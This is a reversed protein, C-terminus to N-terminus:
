DTAPPAKGKQNREIQILVDFYGVLNNVAERYDEDTDYYIGDKAFTAKWKILQLETLEIMYTTYSTRYINTSLPQKGAAQNCCIGSHGELWSYKFLRCATKIQLQILNYIYM